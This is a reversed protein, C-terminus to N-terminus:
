YNFQAQLRLLRGKQRNDPTMLDEFSRDSIMYAATLEVPSMPLWEVGVELERVRYSRGDLEFKKGGDYKQARVYPIFTQSNSRIRYVTQVYGGNLSRVRTNGESPSFEAGRGINWEAQVGFPKPYLVFSVAGRTDMFEDPADLGASRNPMIYKGTFGQIGVEIYQGGNLEFPYSVRLATHLNDNADAKNAGQGNFVALGVIGYDGTGKLGSDVLMKFRQKIHSPTWYLMIGLDRENQLASNLADNRDFPIRNSSSQLNEWGYPIKSLGVRARFTKSSDFAVDFYIDRLQVYNQTGSVETAFDPQIYVSVRDSVQGSLVVRARRLFLGSNGGISRDCQACALDRNTQFLGNYRVQAYGRLSLRQYWAQSPTRASNASSSKVTDTLFFSSGARVSDHSSDANPTQARIQGAALLSIFALGSLRALTSVAIPSRNRKSNGAPLISM